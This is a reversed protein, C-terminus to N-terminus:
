PFSNATPSGWRGRTPLRSVDIEARAEYAIIVLAQILESIKISRESSQASLMDLLEDVLREADPALNIQLRRRLPLVEPRNQTLTPTIPELSKPQELKAPPPSVIKSTASQLGRGEEKPSPTPKPTEQPKIAAEKAALARRANALALVPDEDLYGPLEMPRTLDEASVNITFGEPLGTIGKAM